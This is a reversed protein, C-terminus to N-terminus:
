LGQFHQFEFRLGGFIGRVLSALGGSKSSPDVVIEKLVRATPIDETEPLKPMTVISNGKTKPDSLNYKKLLGSLVVGM